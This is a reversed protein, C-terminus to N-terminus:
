GPALLCMLGVFVALSLLVCPIAVVLYGVDAPDLLARQRVLGRACPVCFIGGRPLTERYVNGPPIDRGCNHCTYMPALETGPVL